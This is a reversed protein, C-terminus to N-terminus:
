TQVDVSILIPAAGTGTEAYFIQKGDPSWLPGNGGTTTLQYKVGAIPPFPQVYIKTDRAQYVEVMGGAGLQSEISFHLLQKGIM